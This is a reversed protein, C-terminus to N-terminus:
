LVIVKGKILNLFIPDVLLELGLTGVAMVNSQQAKLSLPIPASHSVGLVINHHFIDDQDLFSNEPRHRWDTKRVGPGCKRLACLAHDTAPALCVTLATGPRQKM